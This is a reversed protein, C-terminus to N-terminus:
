TGEHPGGEGPGERSPLPSADTAEIGLGEFWALTADLAEPPGYAALAMLGFPEAGIADIRGSIINLDVGFRRSAESIVARTAHPGAFLVRLIRRQEGPSPPPLRAVTGTPIADGIAEAVFRRALDSKPRTFVDFVRGQKVIRGQGLVAVEDCIARVVAMEHTILLVTLALRDRLTRVPLRLPSATSRRWRAARPPASM